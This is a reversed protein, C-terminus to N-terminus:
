CEPMAARMREVRDVLWGSQVGHMGTAPKGLRPLHFTHCHGERISYQLCDRDNECHTQCDDMNDTLAVDKGGVRSDNDWDDM